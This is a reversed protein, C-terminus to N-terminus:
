CPTFWHHACICMASRAAFLVMCVLAHKLFSHLSPVPLWNANDVVERAAQTFTNLLCKFL